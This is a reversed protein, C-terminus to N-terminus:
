GNHGDGQVGCMETGDITVEAKDREKLLALQLGNEDEGYGGGARGLSKSRKMARGWIGEGNVRPCPGVEEKPSPGPM